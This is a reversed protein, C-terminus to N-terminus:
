SSVVLLAVILSVGFGIGWNKWVKGQKIQKAQKRYGKQYEPNQMWKENPYNLLENSPRTSSSAIAPILGVIPSVLSTILTGTGAAKYGDYYREADRMGAAYPNGDMVIASDSAVARIRVKNFTDVTGNAYHVRGLESKYITYYPGEQNDWRKYRLDSHNVDTVKVLLSDGNKRIILDQAATYGFSGILLVLSLTLHKLVPM